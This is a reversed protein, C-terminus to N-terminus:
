SLSLFSILAGFEDLEVVGDFNHDVRRIFDKCEEASFPVGTLKLLAEKLDKACIVGNGDCDFSNFAEVYEPLSRYPGLSRFHFRSVDSSGAFLCSLEAQIVDSDLAILVSQLSLLGDFGACAEKVRVWAACQLDQSQLGFALHLLKDLDEEWIKGDGNKDLLCITRKLEARYEMFPSFRAAHPEDLMAAPMGRQRAQARHLHM